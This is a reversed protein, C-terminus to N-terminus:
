RKIIKVTEKQGNMEMQVFYLGSKLSSMDMSNEYQGYEQEKVLRGDLGFVKVNLSGNGSILYVKSSTITPYVQFADGVYFSDMIKGQCDNEGSIEVETQGVLNEISITHEGTDEFTFDMKQGNVLVKYANSGVVSYSVTRSKSDLSARKGTVSSLENISVGYSQEFFIEPISITVAYMGVPLDHITFDTGSPKDNLQNSYGDGEILIDLLYGSNAMSIEIAGDSSGVCSPTLVYVKIADIPVIDCGNANVEAGPQSDLCTDKHDPVGDADNDQNCLSAEGADSIIWGYTDILNQRAMFSECYQSNGANLIVDNQLVPLSNWGLLTKDYNDLALGAGSFMFNMNTVSSVMWNGLDHDFAVAGSFMNQMDQVSSVNWNGIDQNFSAAGFFMSSMDIVKSVDWTTINGNFNSTSSFMTAMETVNGVDWNDLPQNFALAGQFVGNMNTVKSTNWNNLPQNFSEASAFVASMTIVNDTSWNDIPQNFLKAANFMGTINTVNGTDWNGLPQNFILTFAFMNGMNNVSSVDWDNISGNYVMSLCFDFMSSLSTVRNLNPSDNATIDMNECGQFASDMSSWEIAGWQEITILKDSDNTGTDRFADNFYIRPFKGAISVQYTGPSAYTHTIDGTVHTNSTGDGWDVVYDYIETSYTPITIQNNNSIGPNDTKWTTIFYCADTNGGDTITWGSNDIISQREASASCYQSHGADFVINSQLSPLSSWGKLLSDYNATSLTVDFLMSTMDAVNSVDWNGLDQDFTTAGALMGTMETVNSVNWDSIDQNFSAAGNFMNGMFQVGSVNWASIDGNFSSANEFMYAMSDVNSVDWGNLNQNFSTALGFMSAMETVSSVDWYSIDQNFARAETFMNSMNTVNAVNWSGIQGNFQSAYFFMGYMNTVKSTDWSDLNHNFSEAGRFMREMTTVNQVNWTNLNQNFTKADLFMGMMTVASGVDWGSIDQNFKSAERFMFDTTIVSSLDWDNFSTNGILEGCLSFMYQTTTVDTLDPTDEAVVDLNSCGHFANLMSGWAIAGWRKVLLIKDKDGQNVFYIQPFQGMISVDYTGPAAYTHTIDGTVNFDSTGDGWDVTYNYTEGSFTPITIQNDASTGPNDTKWTTTFSCGTNSGADTITWGYTDIIYQREAAASCYESSSADLQINPQLSPLASWGKLINDYNETSLPVDLFMWTMDTVNSIDWGGLDQDFSSAYQFMGSMNTVNSVNWGSVDQNFLPADLFMVIMDTVNGVDWGGIDQNFVQSGLFMGGMSIVSSVDWSSIDQNFSDTERFMFAMDQVNSVDWSGVDQNFLSAGSFLNVMRTVKSVDWGSIDQNFSSAELFLAGMDTVNSVNWSGIDQNFLPAYRFVGFMDTVNGVDWNSFSDNGVLSSCEWFMSQMSEVNSLDPIDSATVDMNTCRGFAGAMSTWGVNGWQNVAILKEYDKDGEAFFIRPFDGSISVEQTGLTAYTHTIDGTVNNDSTGDGWEVTYNYTEGPFTPITIQNDASAGPNDTKWTTVFPCEKGADTITWGHDFLLKNRSIEGNCYSSNGAHFQVNNQLSPLGAWGTLTNDYNTQSLGADRFMDIMNTVNGIDWNGLDQDFSVARLFLNTMDEVASVDWNDLPQNFSSADAFMAFMNTVRSVNWSNISQNFSSAADFMGLMNTVSSVDWGSIDQNFNVAQQFMSFMNTVKSVNWGGINQDFSSAGAFMIGMSTVQGVNWGGIDQNFTQSNRFMAVMNIVNSVDWNGIDQNFLVAGDFMNFTVLVNSLNWNGFAPTGQLSPCFRFMEGVNQVLSLDPADSAVVDLNKCGGFASYMSTWQQTGWQEITLLKEADNIINDSIAFYSQPYIGTITVTYTGIATYTHTIDGTVNTDTTGDGWDVTYDYTEGPFTPITIQDDNSIGPNDTKWTTIFETQASLFFHTFSLLALIYIKKM